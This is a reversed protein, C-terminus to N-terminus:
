RRRGRAAGGGAAVEEVLDCFRRGVTDRDYRRRVLTQAEQALHAALTRDRLLRVVQSAFVEEDDAILVHRGHIVDLGEAGKSTSVVPTGLAMAELIKIRTGGGLRIPAV